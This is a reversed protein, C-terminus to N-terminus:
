LLDGVTTDLTIRTGTIVGTFSTAINGSTDYADLTFTGSYSKGDPSVTVKETIHTPGAPPGIETPPETPFANGGWAFHNLCYKSHGVEEWVGMCFDGDQPPRGSNMIETKDSHWVVLANDVMTAPISAGNMTNATFTVHWMGVISSGGGDDDDRASTAALGARLLQAQGGQPHWASPHATPMRFGGCNALAYPSFALTVVMAGLAPLFRGYGTKM